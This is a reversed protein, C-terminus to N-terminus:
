INLTEAVKPLDSIGDEETFHGMNAMVIINADLKEKFLVQEDIYVYPDDTSFIATVKSCHSKIKDWDFPTELWPKAVEDAGDEELIIPKLKTWPAVLVIGGVKEGLQLTELYRLITQCGISHGVLYTNEDPTAISQLKSVWAEIQPKDINPMDPLEVSFDKTQLKSKLWQYWDSQSTGEWRPIIIAKKM